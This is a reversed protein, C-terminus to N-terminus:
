SSGTLWICRHADTIGAARHHSGSGQPSLNSSWRSWACHICNMCKLLIRDWVLVTFSRSIDSAPLMGLHLQFCLYLPQLSLEGSPFLPREELTDPSGELWGCPLCNPVTPFEPELPDSVQQSRRTSCAHPACIWTSSFVWVWLIVFCLVLTAPFDWKFLQLTTLLPHLLSSGGGM